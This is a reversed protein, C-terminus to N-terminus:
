AVRSLLSESGPLSQSTASLSRSRCSRARRRSATSTSSRTTAHHARAPAVRRPAVPGRGARGAHPRRVAARARSRAAPHGGGVAGDARRRGRPRCSPRSSAAETDWRPSFIFTFAGDFGVEEAVELTKQLTANTEGPFGVIIDTTIACDPVHERLLAARTIWSGARPRVHSAHAEPRPELGGAAASPRARVREAAGRPARIVDEGM